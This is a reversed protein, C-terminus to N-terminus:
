IYKNENKIINYIFFIKNFRNFSQIFKKKLQIKASIDTYM